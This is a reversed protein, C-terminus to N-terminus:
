NSASSFRNRAIPVPACPGISNSAPGTTSVCCRLRAPASLSPGCSGTRVRSYHARSMRRCRAPQVADPTMRSAAATRTSGPRSLSRTQLLDPRCRTRHLKLPRSGVSCLVSRRRTNRALDGEASGSSRHRPVSERNQARRWSDLRDSVDPGQSQARDDNTIRNRGHKLTGEVVTPREGTTAFLSSPIEHCAYHSTRTTLARLFPLHM